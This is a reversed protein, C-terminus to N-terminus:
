TPSCCARSGSRRATSSTGTAAQPRGDDRHPHDRLRRQARDRRVGPAAARRQRDEAPLAAEAGRQRAAAAHGHHVDPRPLRGLQRRLPQAGGPHHQGRHHGARRRRVGRPDPLGALRGRDAGARVRGPVRRASRRRALVCGPLGQLHRPDGRSDGNSSSRGSTRTPSRCPGQGGADQRTKPSHVRDAPLTTQQRGARVVRGHPREIGVAGPGEGALLRPSDSPADM